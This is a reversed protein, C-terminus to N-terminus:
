LGITSSAGASLLALYQIDTTIAQPASTFTGTFRKADDDDNSYHALKWLGFVRVAGVPDLSLSPPLPPTSLNSTLSSPRPILPSPNLRHRTPISPTMLDCPPYGVGSVVSRSHQTNFRSRM